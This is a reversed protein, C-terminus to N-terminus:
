GGLEAIKAEAISLRENCKRENAVAHAVKALADNIKRHLRNNDQENKERLAKIEGRYIELLDRQAELAAEMEVRGMTKNETRRAQLAAYGALVAALATFM